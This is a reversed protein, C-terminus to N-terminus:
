KSKKKIVVVVVAAVIIVAVVAIIIPAASGGEEEAQSSNTAPAKSQAKSEETSAAASEEASAAASEETSEVASEETSEVASEDTSEVASEDTSEAASEEESVEEQIMETVVIEYQQCTNAENFAWFQVNFDVGNVDIVRDEIGIPSIVYKDNLAYILYQQEAEGIAVNSLEADLDGVNVFGGDLKSAITYADTGEVKVFHWVQADSGNAASTNINGGDNTFTKELAPVNINAYFEVGLDQALTEPLASASIAISSVLSVLLMLSIALTFLKKAFTKKM